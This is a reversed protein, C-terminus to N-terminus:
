KGMESTQRELERRASLAPATTSADRAPAGRGQRYQALARDLIGDLRAMSTPWHHHSIVRARGAEALRQRVARDDMLRLTAQACEAAGDAVLLHEGPVVDVGAAAVTSTVVPVAMAMAELIKNQTGRAIALPAVMVASRLVYPRVDKVSGTVTVNPLEALKRIAPIPEAGVIFLKANPRRQRILPMVEHCFRLMCEQNPYYDMRGIFSIAEADYDEGDPSFFQHDVGNPFWDSSIGPALQNLTALEAKTTATCLDFQHALRREARALKVGEWWYGTSLPYPKYNAYELWKQSDMDGFDLVKATRELGVAYQAVSSCHVFVADYRHRRHLERVRRRLEPAYFYGMSSPTATPLRAVMRLTQWPEGVVVCETHACHQRLDAGAAAEAPSRALSCVHVEHRQALHEIMHFPRIKGGRNPPFPFRHCIYLIKM